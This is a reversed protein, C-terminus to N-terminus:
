VHIKYIDKYNRFLGNYDLGFGVVFDDEKIQILGYDVLNTSSKKYLLSVVKVSKANKSKLYNHLYEITIGSDVIDEIIIIDRDQMDLIPEYLLKLEKREIGQYSSLRIYDIECTLNDPIVNAAFFLSGGLVILFIPPNNQYHDALIYGLQRSKLIIEENRILIELHDIEM